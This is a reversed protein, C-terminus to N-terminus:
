TGDNSADDVVILEFDRVTDDLDELDRLFIAITSDIIAAEDYVPVAYSLSIREDGVAVCHLRFRARRRGKTPRHSVGRNGGGDGALLRRGPLWGWAPDIAARIRARRPACRERTQGRQAGGDRRVDRPSPIRPAPLPGNVAVAPFRAVD